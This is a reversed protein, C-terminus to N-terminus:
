LIHSIGFGAHYLRANEFQQRLEATLPHDRYQPVGTWAASQGLPLSRQLIEPHSQYPGIESRVTLM